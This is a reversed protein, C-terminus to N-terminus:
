LKFVRMIFNIFLAIAAMIAVLPALCVALVSNKNCGWKRPRGHILLMYHDFQKSALEDEPFPYEAGLRHAAAFGSIVAIEHTNILTYSGCYYTNKTGQM